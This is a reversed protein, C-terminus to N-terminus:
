WAYFPKGLDYKVMHGVLLVDPTDGEMDGFFGREGLPSKGLGVGYLSTGGPTKMLYDLGAKSVLAYCCGENEKSNGWVEVVYWSDSVQTSDKSARSFQFKVMKGALDLKRSAVEYLKINAPTNMATKLVATVANSIAAPTPPPYLNFQGAGTSAVAVILFLPIIYRKM